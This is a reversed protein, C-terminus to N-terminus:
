DIRLPGRGIAERMQALEAPAVWDGWWTAGAEALSRIRDRKEETESSQAVGGVCIDYGAATGREREVLAVMERVDAATVTQDNDSGPTGKYVCCGDWRVLRRRVGNVLWDGGVWLPIRPKQVPVPALTLDTVRYHQGEYSVPEGTWLRAVIELGEDLRAALTRQDAPEGVAAFGPERADGAGVGLVLRGASLHDLTMAEHALKWPRRRSVPTVLTGLRIRSTAVAMASLVVWPDFTPVGVQGQYVVYDELFIGDWGSSEALAALDAMTQPPFIAGLSVAFRM